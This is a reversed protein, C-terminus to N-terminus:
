KLNELTSKKILETHSKGWTKEEPLMDVRHFDPGNQALGAIEIWSSRKVSM